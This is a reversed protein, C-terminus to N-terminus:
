SREEEVGHPPAAHPATVLRKILTLTTGGHDNPQYEVTDMTSKMLHVGLGGPRVAELPRSRIENPDVFRGYDHIDIRFMGAPAHLVLDIRRDTSGGYGHRMVNTIGETVGLAIRQRDEASFGAVEAGQEVLARVLPLFKPHSSLSVEVVDPGAPTMPDGVLRAV